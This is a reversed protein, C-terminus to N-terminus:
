RELGSKPSSLNLGKLVLSEGFCTTKLRKTPTKPQWSALYASMKTLFSKKGFPFVKRPNPVFNLLIKIGPMRM